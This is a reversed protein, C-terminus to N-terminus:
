KTPSGFSYMPNPISGQDVNGPEISDLGLDRVISEIVTAEHLNWTSGARPRAM